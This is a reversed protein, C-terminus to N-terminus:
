SPWRWATKAIVNRGADLALAKEGTMPEGDYTSDHEEILASLVKRLETSIAKAEDAQQQARMLDQKLNFDVNERLYDQVDYMLGEYLAESAKRMVNPARKLVEACIADAATKWDTLAETIETAKGM